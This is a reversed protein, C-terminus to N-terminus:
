LVVFCSQSPLLVGSHCLYHPVYCAYFLFHKTSVNGSGRDRERDFGRDRDQGGRDRDKEFRDFGRDRDYGRDKGDRDYGGRDRSDRMEKGDRVDRNDRTDRIDRSDRFDRMDRDKDFTNRDKSDRDADPGRRWADTSKSDSERLRVAVLLSYRTVQIDINM